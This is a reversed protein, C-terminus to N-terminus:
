LIGLKKQATRYARETSEDFIGEESEDDLWSLGGADVAAFLPKAMKGVIGLSHLATAFDEISEVDNKELAAYVGSWEVDSEFDPKGAIARMSPVAAEGALGVLLHSRAYDKMWQGSGGNNLALFTASMGDEAIAPLLHAAPEGVIELIQLSEAYALMSEGDDHIFSDYPGTTGDDDVVRMLPVASSGKIGLGLLAEAYPVFTQRGQKGKFAAHLAQNMQVFPLAADGHIGNKALLGAAQSIGGPLGDAIAHHLVERFLKPNLDAGENFDLYEFADPTAMKGELGIATLCWDDGYRSDFYAPSYDFCDDIAHQHLDAPDAAEFVKHNATINPDYCSVRIRRAGDPDTKWEMRVALVHNKTELLFSATPQGNARMSESMDGLWRGFHRDGVMQKHTPDMRASGYAAEVSKWAAATSGFFAKLTEPSRAVLDLFKLKVDDSEQFRQLNAEVEKRDAPSLQQLCDALKAPDAILEEAFAKVLDPHLYAWAIHRCVAKTEVGQGGNAGGERLIVGNWNASSPRKRSLAPFQKAPVIRARPAAAGSAGTRM